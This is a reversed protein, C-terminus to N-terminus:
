THAWTGWGELCSIVFKGVLSMQLMRINVMYQLQICCVNLAVTRRTMQVLSAERGLFWTSTLQLWPNCGARTAVQIRWEGTRWTTAVQIRSGAPKRTMNM